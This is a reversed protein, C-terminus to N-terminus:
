QLHVLLRHVMGSSRNVGVLACPLFILPFVKARTIIMHRPQLSQGEHRLLYHAMYVAEQDSIKFADDLLARAFNGTVHDNGIGEAITDYRSCFVSAFFPLRILVFVFYMRIQGDFGHQTYRTDPATTVRAVVTSQMLLLFCLFRMVYQM